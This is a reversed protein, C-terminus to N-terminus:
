GRLSDPQRRPCSSRRRFRINRGLGTLSDARLIRVCVSTRKGSVRNRQLRTTSFSDGAIVARPPERCGRRGTAGEDSARALLYVPWRQVTRSYAPNEVASSHFAKKYLSGRPPASPSHTAKSRAGVAAVVRVVRADDAVDALRADGDVGDLVHLDEEVAHREVLHRHRHRHVAGGSERHRRGGERSGSPLFTRGSQYCNIKPSM